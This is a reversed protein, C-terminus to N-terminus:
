STLQNKLCKKSVIHVMSELGAGIEIMATYLV